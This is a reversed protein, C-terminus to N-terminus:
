LTMAYEYERAKGREDSYQRDQELVFKMGLKEMVRRSAMNRTDCHAIVEKAGLSKAFRVLEQAAETAFGRGHYEKDLVWGLECSFEDIRSLSIAGIHKGYLCIAFEYDEPQEKGWEKECWKLFGLTEDVNHNPLYIMYKTVDLDTAYKHTTLLDNTSLPRLTLRDTQFKM